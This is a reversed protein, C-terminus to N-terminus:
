RTEAESLAHLLEPLTGTATATAVPNWYDRYTTIHGDHVTIVVIYDLRYPDNTRTTTGTATFEVIITDPQRTHHVTMAPIDHLNMLDPLHRLYDRIHTRGTLRTPAGAIAFPFEATGDTAWTDAAADTDGTRMLDLMRRFTAEPTSTM